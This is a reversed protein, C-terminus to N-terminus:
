PARREPFLSLLGEESAACRGRETVLGTVLAAPTVDFAPNRAPSGPAALRVGGAELVEAADREEIPVEAVGDRMEWDISRSPVAAHFPVGHARAALAKAYTGIKNCVDGTRTTRDTGVLVLDVEGRQMLHAGAGDVIVAHPIGRAGMEWATLAAGQLRPRTESVWVHLPIGAEHARYIPSTATGHAVTALAGANCHTLVRVPAGDPRRAAAAEVLALGHAGIRANAEVDADVLEGARARAAAPREHPSLAALEAALGDVERALNVATPRAARLRDAARALAGDSPDAQAALVLGYAGAVGILPAGRVRMTRIAEEAEEWTRLTGVVLAGPLRTQDLFRVVTRGDEEEAWLSRGAAPGEAMRGAAPGDM